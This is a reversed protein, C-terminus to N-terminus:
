DPKKKYDVSQWWWAPCTFKRMETGDPFVDPHALNLWQNHTMGGFDKLYLHKGEVVGSGISIGPNKLFVRLVKNRDKRKKFSNWKITEKVCGTGDCVYCVIASGDREGMGIYLGTSDCVTCEREITISNTM